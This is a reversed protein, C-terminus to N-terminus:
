SKDAEEQSQDLWEKEQSQDVRWKPENFEKVM